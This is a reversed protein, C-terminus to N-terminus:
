MQPRARMFMFRKRIISTQHHITTLIPSQPRQRLRVIPRIRQITQLRQGSIPPVVSMKRIFINILCHSKLKITRIWFVDFCRIYIFILGSSHQDSCKIRTSITHAETIRRYQSAIRGKNFEKRCLCVYYFLLDILWVTGIPLPSSYNSVTEIHVKLQHLPIHIPVWHPHAIRLNLPHQTTELRLHM